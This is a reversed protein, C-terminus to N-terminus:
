GNLLNTINLERNIVATGGYSTRICGPTFKWNKGTKVDIVSIPYKRNNPLFGVIKYTAPRVSKRSYQFELGIINGPFGYRRSMDLNEADVIHSMSADVGDIKICFKHGNNESISLDFKIDPFDSKLFTSIFKTVENLRSITM